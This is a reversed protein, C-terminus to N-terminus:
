SRKLYLTEVVNAVKEFHDAGAELADIVTRVKILEVVGRPTDIYEPDSFLDAMLDRYVRDADNELRNVEIWYSEIKNMTALRPMADATLEAARQLIGVQETVAPPLTAVHYNVVADTAEDMADLCDDLGAALQYADVHAFPAFRTQNLKRIIEHTCEDARHEVKRMRKAIATREEVDGGVLEALLDTGEVLLEGMQTFLDFFARHSALRLRM